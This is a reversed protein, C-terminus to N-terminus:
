KECNHKYLQDLGVQQQNIEITQDAKPLGTLSKPFRSVLKCAELRLATTDDHIRHEKNSQKLDWVVIQGNKDGSALLNGMPSFALSHVLAYHAQLTLAVPRKPSTKTEGLTRVVISGDAHGSSLKQGQQDTTLSTIEADDPFTM